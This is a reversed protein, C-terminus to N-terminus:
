VSPDPTKAGSAPPAALLGLLGALVLLEAVVYKLNLARVALLSPLPVAHHDPITALLLGFAVIACSATKLPGGRERWVAPLLVGAPLLWVTNMAWTLPGALLVAVMVAQWYVMERVPTPPRDRGSRAAMGLLLVAAAVIGLALPAPPADDALRKGVVRSLSANAVFPLTEIRYLRGDRYAQGDPAGARLKDLAKTSLRMEPSGGEGYRSIRPLERALYNGLASPGELAVTAGTLILGGLLYGALVRWRRRWVLFPVFFVVNLKLLTAAALLVGSGLGGLGYRVLPRLALSILLLTLADIQGRELLTLLPHFLSVWTALALVTLAEWRLRLADGSAWLAGALCGLTLLMWIRKAVGYRLHTLPEFLAAALPPYLFRSHRYGDAGDWIPPERDAHTLYPSLGQRHAEGAAYFASFDIQLSQRGFQWAYGTLRLASAALLTALVARALLRRSDSM